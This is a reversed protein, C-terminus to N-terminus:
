SSTGHRPYRIFEETRRAAMVEEAEIAAEVHVAKADAEAEVEL